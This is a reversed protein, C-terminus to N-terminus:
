IVQPVIAKFTLGSYFKLPQKIVLGLCFTLVSSEDGENQDIIVNKRKRYEKQEDKTRLIEMRASYRVDLLNEGKTITATSTKSDTLKM